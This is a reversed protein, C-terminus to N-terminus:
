KLANQYVVNNTTNNPAYIYLNKPNGVRSCAVYLQGHSFCSPELHIGAVNLSQGQAKNITMAFALRVPFQLRKFEFPLDSPILPIRPIFVDEGASTGSLITAEIINPHLNKVTLRTGNCLKPPRLNRLMMIPSGVKLLLQHSPM